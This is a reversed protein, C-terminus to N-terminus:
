LNWKMVFDQLKVLKEKLAAIQENSENELERVALWGVDIMDLEEDTPTRGKAMWSKLAELQVYFKQWFAEADPGEKMRAGIDALLDDRVAELDARTKIVTEKKV